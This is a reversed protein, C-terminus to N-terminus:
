RCASTKTFMKAICVFSILIGESFRDDIEGENQGCWYVKVEREGWKAKGKLLMM